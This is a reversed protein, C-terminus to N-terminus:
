ARSSKLADRAIQKMVTASHQGDIEDLAARLRRVELALNRECETGHKIYDELDEEYSLMM